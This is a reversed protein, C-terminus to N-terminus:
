LDNWRRQALDLIRDANSPKMHHRDHFGFPDGGFHALDSADVLLTRGGAAALRRDAEARLRVVRHERDPDGARLADEFLPHVPLLLVVLPIERETALRVFRDFLELQPSAFTDGPFFVAVDDASIWPEDLFRARLERSPATDPDRQGALIEAYFRNIRPSAFSSEPEEDAYPGSGDPSFRAHDGIPVFLKREQGTTVARMALSFQQGSLLDLAQSLRHVAPRYGSVYPTLQPTNLLRRRLHRYFVPGDDGPQFAWTELGLLILKPSARLDDLLFRLWSWHEDTRAWYNALHFTRMGFREEVAAPLFPYLTSAGILWADPLEERPISELAEAKGRRDNYVHFFGADGYNGWVNAWAVFGTGICLSVVLTGVFALLGGDRAERDPGARSEGERYEEPTM